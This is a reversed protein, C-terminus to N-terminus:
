KSFDEIHEISLFNMHIIFIIIFVVMEYDYGGYGEYGHSSFITSGLINSSRVYKTLEDLKNGILRLIGIEDKKKKLDIVELSEEILSMNITLSNTKYVYYLKYTTNLM